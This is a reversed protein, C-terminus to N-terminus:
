WSPTPTACLTLSCIVGRPLTFFWATTVPQLKSPLYCSGNILLLGSVHQSGGSVRAERVQRASFRLKRVPLRYMKADSLGTFRTLMFSRGPLVATDTVLVFKVLFMHLHTAHPKPVGPAGARPLCPTRPTPVAIHQGGTTYLCPDIGATRTSRKHPACQSAGNPEHGM